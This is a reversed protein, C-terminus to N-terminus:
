RPIMREWEEPQLVRVDVVYHQTEGFAASPVGLHEEYMLAVRQGLTENIRIAVSDDRVTFFFKEPMTGPITVMALEGEWTKFLVGKRSFKQVYGARQGTSYPWTLVFWTYIIFGILISLPIIILWRKWRGRPKQVAPQEM